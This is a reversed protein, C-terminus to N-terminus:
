LIQLGVKAVGKEVMGLRRAAGWSLDIIRRKKFPGRDNIIVVVSRRTELDTVRVRTGFPLTQHAATMRRMNFRETSATPRGHFERGYWSADGVQYYSRGGRSTVCGVYVVTVVAFVLVKALQRGSIGGYSPVPDIM